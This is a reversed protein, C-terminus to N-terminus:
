SWEIKFDQHPDPDRVPGLTTHPYLRRTTRCHHARPLTGSANSPCPLRDPWPPRRVSVVILSSNMSTLAPGFRFLYPPHICVLLVYVPTRYGAYRSGYAM